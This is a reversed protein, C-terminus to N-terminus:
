RLLVGHREHEGVSPRPRDDLEEVHDPREGVRGSVTAIGAVREMDHQRRQGSVAEAVLRGLGAPADFADGVTPGLDHGREAVVPEAGLAAVPPRRDGGVEGHAVGIPQEPDVEVHHDGQAPGSSPSGM